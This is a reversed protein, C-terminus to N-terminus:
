FYNSVWSILKVFSCVTDSMCHVHCNNNCYYQQCLIHQSSNRSIHQCISKLDLKLKTLKVFLNNIRCIKSNFVFILFLICDIPDCEDLVDNFSSTLVCYFKLIYCICKKLIFSQSMLVHTTFLMHPLVYHKTM